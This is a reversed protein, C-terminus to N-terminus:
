KLTQLEAEVQRRQDKQWLPLLSLSKNFAYRAKESEGTQKYMFGLEFFVRPNQPDLRSAAILM